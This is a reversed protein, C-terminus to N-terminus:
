CGLDNADGAAILEQGLLSISKYAISYSRHDCEVDTHFSTVMIRVPLEFRPEKGNLVMATRKAGILSPLIEKPAGEIGVVKPELPYFPGVARPLKKLSAADPEFFAFGESDQEPEGSPLRDFEIVLKGTLALLGKWEAYSGLEYSDSRKVLRLGPDSHTYKSKPAIDAAVVWAPTTICITALLMTKGLNTIPLM